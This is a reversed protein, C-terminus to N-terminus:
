ILIFVFQRIKGLFMFRYRGVKKPDIFRRSFPRTLKVMKDGGNFIAVLIYPSYLYHLQFYSFRSNFKKKKPITYITNLEFPLQKKESDYFYYNVQIPSTKKSIMAHVNIIAQKITANIPSTYGIIGETSKMRNPKITYPNNKENSSSPHNNQVTSINNTTKNNA